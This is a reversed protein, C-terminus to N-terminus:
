VEVVYLISLFLSIKVSKFDPSGCPEPPEFGKREAVKLAKSAV